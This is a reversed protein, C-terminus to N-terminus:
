QEGPGSHEYREALSELRGIGPMEGGTISFCIRAQLDPLKVYYHHFPHRKRNFVYHAHSVAVDRPDRTVQLLSCGQEGLLHEFARSHRVHGRLYHGEPMASLRRAVWSRRVRVAIEIGLLIENSPDRSGRLLQKAWQRRGIITESGLPRAGRPCGALQLAKEVLHAGAKPVSNLFIKM